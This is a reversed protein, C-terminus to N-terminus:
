PSLRSYKQRASDPQEISISSLERAEICLSTLFFLYKITQLASVNRM